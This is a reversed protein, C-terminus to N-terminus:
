FAAVEFLADSGSLGLVGFTQTWMLKLADTRKSEEIMGMTMIGMILLLILLRGGFHKLQQEVEYFFLRRDTVDLNLPPLEEQYTEECSRLNDITACSECRLKTHGPKELRRM